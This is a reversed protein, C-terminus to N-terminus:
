IIGRERACTIHIYNSCGNYLNFACLNVVGEVLNCISCAISKRNSNLAALYNAINGTSDNLYTEPQNLACLSHIWVDSNEHARKMAGGIYPCLACKPTILKSTCVDCKWNKSFITVYCNLHVTIKCDTCRCKLNEPDNTDSFLCIDCVDEFMSLPPPSLIIKKLASNNIIPLNNSSKFNLIQTHIKYM